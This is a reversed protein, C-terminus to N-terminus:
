DFILALLSGLEAWMCLSGAHGNSHTHHWQVHAESSKEKRVAAKRGHPDKSIGTEKEGKEGGRGARSRLSECNEEM